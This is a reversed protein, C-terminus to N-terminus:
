HRPAHRRLLELTLALLLDVDNDTATKIGLPNEDIIAEVRARIQADTLQHLAKGGVYVTSLAASRSPPPTV